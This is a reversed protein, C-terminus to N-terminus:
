LEPFYRVGIQTESDLVTLLACALAIIGEDAARTEDDRPPIM